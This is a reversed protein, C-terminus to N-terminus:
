TKKKLKEKIERVIRNNTMIRGTNKILIDDVVRENAKYANYNFNYESILVELQKLLERKRKTMFMMSDAKIQLKQIQINLHHLKDFISRSSVDHHPLKHVHDYNDIQYGLHCEFYSKTIEKQYIENTEVCKDIESLYYDYLSKEVVEEKKSTFNGNYFTKILEKIELFCGAAHLQGGGGYAKAVKNVEVGDLTSRFDLKFQHDNWVRGVIAFPHGKAMKEGLESYLVPSNVFPVNYGHFNVMIKNKLIDNILKDQYDLITLGVVYAGDFDQLHNDFDEILSIYSKFYASVERSGDLNWKWLDRDEVYPIFWPMEEDRHFYNWTLVAGSHDTDYIITLKDDLEPGFSQDFVEAASDHHDIILLSKVKKLMEIMVEKKFSFDVAIVDTDTYTSPDPIEDYDIPIYKVNQPNFRGYVAWAAALGDMCNSHYYVVKANDM